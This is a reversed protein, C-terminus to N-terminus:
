DDWGPCLQDLTRSAIGALFLNTERYYPLALVALHLAWGAARAWAADDYESMERRFAKRGREDLYLWATMLDAAPDGVGSSGWDIVGTLEGGAFLLNGVHLDAHLWRGPRDWRPAELGDEWVGVLRPDGGVQAICSRVADDNDRADLRGRGATWPRGAADVEHLARILAALRLPTDERVEEVPAMEGVVWRVVSWQYPYGLAPEGLALPEPVAVPLYPAVLPVVVAEKSPDDRAWERRPLRVALDGGLRYLAHSTGGHVLETVPLGHWRPFQTRILEDVLSVDTATVGDLM